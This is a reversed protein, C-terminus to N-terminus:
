DWIPSDWFREHEEYVSFSVADILEENEHLFTEISVSLNDRFYPKEIKKYKLFSDADKALEPKKGYEKNFFHLLQTKFEGNVFEVSYLHFTNGILITRIEKDKNEERNRYYNSVWVVYSNTASTKLSKNTKM